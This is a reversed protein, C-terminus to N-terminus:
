TPIFWRYSNPTFRTLSRTGAPPSALQFTPGQDPFGHTVWRGVRHIPDAPPRPAPLYGRRAQSVVLSPASATHLVWQEGEKSGLLMWILSRPWGDRHRSM